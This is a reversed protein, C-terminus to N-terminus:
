AEKRSTLRRLVPLLTLYLIGALLPALISWALIAHLGTMGFDQMFQGPSAKFRELMDTISFVVPKAGVVKEGIRICVPILVLQVGSMLWNILQLLPHNLKFLFGALLCLTTTTGLIPFVSLVAGLGITLAAKEPSLGQKLQVMVPQVVRRQWFSSKEAGVKSDTSDALKTTIPDATM